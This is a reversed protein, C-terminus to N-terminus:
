SLKKNRNWWRESIINTWSDSKNQFSIISRFELQGSALRSTSLRKMLIGESSVISLITFSRSKVVSLTCFKELSLSFCNKAAYSDKKKHYYNNDAFQQHEWQVGGHPGVSAQAKKIDYHNVIVKLNNRQNKFEFKWVIHYIYKQKMWKVILVVLQIYCFIEMFIAFESICYISFRCKTTRKSIRTTECGFM